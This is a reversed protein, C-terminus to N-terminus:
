RFKSFIKSKKDQHKDFDTIFYIHGYSLSVLETKLGRKPADTCVEARINGKKNMKMEKNM